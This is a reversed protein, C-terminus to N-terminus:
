FLFSTQRLFSASSSSFTSNTLFFSPIRLQLCANFLYNANLVLSALIMLSFRCLRIVLSSLLLFINYPSMKAKHPTRTAIGSTTTPLFFHCSPLLCSQHYYTEKPNYKTAIIVLLGFDLCNSEKPSTSTIKIIKM